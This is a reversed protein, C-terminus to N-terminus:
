VNLLLVFGPGVTNYIVRALHTWNSLSSFRCPCNPGCLIRLTTISDRMPRRQARGINWYFEEAAVNM